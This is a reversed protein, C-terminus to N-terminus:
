KQCGLQSEVLAATQDRQASPPATAGLDRWLDCLVSTSRDPLAQAGATLTKAQEWDDLRASAAIFPLLEISNAARLGQKSADRWLVVATPWDGYQAALEAKEYYYCWTRAPESGFIQAPPMTESTALIRSPNSVTLWTAAQPTIVRANALQPGLVWLCQDQGPEFTIAVVNHVDATFTTAYKEFTDTQGAAFKDFNLHEFGANFWYSATPPPTVQPYLMNIAFATPYIGMYFLIEQDSVIMTNPKLAPARWYLQWYFQQQKDWSAQFNRAIQVQLSVGIGLLVSLVLFRHLSRDVLAYTLGVVLMSAGPMAALALRESWLQNKQYISFGTLWFPLIALVISVIGAAALPAAHVPTASEEDFLHLRAFAFYALAAFVVLSGLILFTSPRSFDIIAPDVAAYWQSLVVYVLDQLVSQLIGLLGTLPTRVVDVLTALPTFRDYGFISGYSSRYVVYLGLVLLYPASIKLVKKWRDGAPLDAFLLLLFVPRCLELGSFYEIFVLHCAELLVAVVTLAFFARPHRAALLMLLLSLMFVLYMVWHLTYAVALPQLTFIPYIAFLLTLWATLSRQEPWIQRLGLWFTLATLLRILMLSWHWSAPSYGLVKFFFAYITWAFPGRDALLFQQLGEAGQWYAYFVHHWDDQFFGLRSLLLGFCFFCM